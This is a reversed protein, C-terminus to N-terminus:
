FHVKTFLQDDVYLEVKDITFVLKHKHGFGSLFSFSKNENFVFALQHFSAVKNHYNKIADPNGQIQAIKFLYALAILTEERKPYQTCFSEFTETAMQYNNQQFYYEGEAFQAPLMYRSDPYLQVITQFGMFAFDSEGQKALTLAEKWELDADSAKVCPVLLCGQLLLSIIIVYWKM